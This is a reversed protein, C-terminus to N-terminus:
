PIPLEICIEIKKLSQYIGEKSIMHSFFFLLKLELIVLKNFNLKFNFEKLRIVVCTLHELDQQCSTNNHVNVDDVFTKLFYLVNTGHKMHNTGMAKMGFPITLEM